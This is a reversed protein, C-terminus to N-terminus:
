YLTITLTLKPNPNPTLTLNDYPFHNLNNNNIFRNNCDSGLVKVGVRLM